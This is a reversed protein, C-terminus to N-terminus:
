DTGGTEEIYRSIDSPGEFLMVCSHKRAFGFDVTNPDETEDFSRFEVSQVPVATCGDVAFLVPYEPNCNELQEIVEFVTLTKM